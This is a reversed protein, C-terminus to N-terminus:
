EYLTRTATGEGEGELAEGGEGELAEDGEGMQHGRKDELSTSATATMHEEELVEDRPRPPSWQRRSSSGRTM